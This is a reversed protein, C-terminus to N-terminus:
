RTEILIVGNAGQGGYLAAQSNDLKKISIITSPTVFNVDDVILGDLVILAASSATFSRTGRLQVGKGGGQNIITASPIAYKIADYADTFQGYISNEHSLNQLGYELNTQSMHGRSVVLEVNDDEEVLFILNIRISKEFDTVRHSHEAFGPEKIRLVDNKKVEIEFRGRDDTVAVTKAKKASITVNGLPFQNFSIITGSVKPTQTLGAFPIVFIAILLFKPSIKKM